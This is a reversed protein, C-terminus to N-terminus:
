GLLEELTIINYDKFDEEFHEKSAHELVGCEIVFCANEGYVSYCEEGTLMSVIYEEDLGESNLVELCTDVFLETDELTKTNIVLRDDELMEYVIAEIKKM